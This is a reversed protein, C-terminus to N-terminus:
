TPDAWRVTWRAVLYFVGYRDDVRDVVADTVTAVQQGVAQWAPAGAAGLEAAEGLHLAQLGTPRGETVAALVSDDFAIAGPHLHGPAKDTRSSTGDGMVLLGDFGALPSDTGVVQAPRGELLWGAIAVPLDVPPGDGVRLGFGVTSWSTLPHDTEGPVLVGV